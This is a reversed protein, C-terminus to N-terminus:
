PKAKRGAPGTVTVAQRRSRRWQKGGNWGGAERPAGAERTVSVVGERSGIM